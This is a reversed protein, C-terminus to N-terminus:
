SLQAIKATIPENGDNRIILMMKVDGDDAVNYIETAVDTESVSEPGWEISFGKPMDGAHYDGLTFRSQMHPRVDFERIQKAKFALGNPAHEAAGQQATTTPDMSVTLM